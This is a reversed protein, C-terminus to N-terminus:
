LECQIECTQSLWNESYLSPNKAHPFVERVLLVESWLLSKICDKSVQTMQRLFSSKNQKGYFNGIM